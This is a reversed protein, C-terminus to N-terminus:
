NKNLEGNINKLEEFDIIDCKLNGVPLNIRIKVPIYNEDATIWIEMQEEKKFPSKKEIIPVFKLCNIKGFKTKVKEKAKYKLKILFLEDDFFTNLTIIKGKELGNSFLYRRAFYFASLIDLIDSPVEHKGSKLSKVYGSDRFFLVENYSTYHHELINRVSKIPLGSHVETYSEYIDRITVMSGIVGTTKALATIHYIYSYGSPELNISLSAEGGKIVGYRVKYSIKEGSQFATNIFFSSDIKQSFSVSNFILFIYIIELRRLIM